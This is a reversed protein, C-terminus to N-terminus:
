KLGLFHTEVVTLARRATPLPLALTERPRLAIGAFWGQIQRPKDHRQAPAGSLNGTREDAQCAM